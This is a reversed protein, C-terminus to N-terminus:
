RPIFRESRRQSEQEERQIDDLPGSVRQRRRRGLALAALALGLAGALWKM